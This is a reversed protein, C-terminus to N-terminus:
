TTTQQEKARCIGDERERWKRLQLKDGNRNEELNWCENESPSLKSKMNQYVRKDEM